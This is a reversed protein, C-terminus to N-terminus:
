QFLKLTRAVTGGGASAFSEVTQSEWEWTVPQQKSMNLYKKPRTHSLLGEFSLGEVYVVVLEVIDNSLIRGQGENSSGIGVRDKVLSHHPM